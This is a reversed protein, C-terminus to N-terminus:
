FRVLEHPICDYVFYICLLAHWSSLLFFILELIPLAKAIIFNMNDHVTQYFLKLFLFSITISSISSRFCLLGPLHGYGTVRSYHMRVRCLVIHGYFYILIGSLVVGKLFHRAVYQKDLILM